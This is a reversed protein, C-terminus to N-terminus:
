IKNVKDIQDVALEEVEEISKLADIEVLRVGLKDLEHVAPLDHSFATETQQRVLAEAVTVGDGHIRKWQRAMSYELERGPPFVLHLVLINWGTRALARAQEVTRPFGD